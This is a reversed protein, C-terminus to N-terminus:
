KNEVYEVGKHSEDKGAVSLIEEILGNISTGRIGLPGAVKRLGAIGSKDAIAELEFRTYLRTAKVPVDSDAITEQVYKTRGSDDGRVEEPTGDTPALHTSRGVPARPEVLVKEIQVTTGDEWRCGFISSLALAQRNPVDYVSLGDRFLVMGMQGSYNEFGKQTIRLKM